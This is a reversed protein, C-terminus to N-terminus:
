LRNRAQTLREDPERTIRIPRRMPSPTVNSLGGSLFVHLLEKCDEDRRHERRGAEGRERLVLAALHVLGIFAALHVLLRVLLLARLLVALLLGGLRVLHVFRVLLLGSCDCRFAPCTGAKKMSARRAQGEARRRGPARAAAGPPAVSHRCASSGRQPPRRSRSGRAPGSTGCRSASCHR